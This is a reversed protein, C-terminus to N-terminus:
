KALDAKVKDIGIKIEDYAQEPTIKNDLMKVLAGQVVIEMQPQGLIKPMPVGYEDAANQFQSIIKQHQASVTPYAEKIYPETHEATITKKASIGLNGAWEGLITPSMIIEMVKWAAEKQTSGKIISIGASGVMVQSKDASPGKPFQMIETRDYNTTGHTIVNASYYAGTHIIGVSNAEWAKYLEPYLWTVQSKPMYASMDNFLNLVELYKPKAEDSTDDPSIGNALSVMMLDRFTFRGTGGNAMSYGSKGDKSMAKVAAKLDDWSKLDELKYGANGLMETNFAHAYIVATGPIAYLKGDVTMYDLTAQIYDEAKVKDNLYGDLPELADMAVPNTVDQIQMMDPYDKTNVMVTLKKEIDAWVLPIFEVDINPYQKKVETKINESIRKEAESTGPWLFRLKGSIEEPAPENAAVSTSAESAESAESTKEVQNDKPQSSQGGCGTLAVAVVMTVALFLVLIRKKM